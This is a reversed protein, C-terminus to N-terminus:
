TMTINVYRIYQSLSFRSIKLCLSAFPVFPIRLHEVGTSHKKAM